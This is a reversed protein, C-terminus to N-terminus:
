GSGTSNLWAETRHSAMLIRVRESRGEELSTERLQQIRNTVGRRAGNTKTM